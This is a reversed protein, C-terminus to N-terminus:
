DHLAGEIVNAIDTGMKNTTFARVERGAGSWHRWCETAAEDGARRGRQDAPDNDVLITLAEIGALVPFNRIAGASGM